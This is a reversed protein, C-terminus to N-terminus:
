GRNRRRWEREAEGAQASRSASLFFAAFFACAALASLHELSDLLGSLALGEAISAAHSFIVCSSAAILLGPRPLLRKSLVVIIAPLIALDVLLNALEGIELAAIIGM